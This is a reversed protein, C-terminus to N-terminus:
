NKALLWQEAGHYSDVRGGTYGASSIANCIVEYKRLATQPLYTEVTNIILIDPACSETLKSAAFGITELVKLRDDGVLFRKTSTGSNFHNITGNREAEIVIVHLERYNPPHATVPALAVLAKYTANTTDDYGFDFAVLDEGERSAGRFPLDSSNLTFVFAM